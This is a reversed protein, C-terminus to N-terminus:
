EGVNPVAGSHASETKYQRDAQRWSVDLVLVGCGTRGIGLPEPMLATQEARVVIQSLGFEVSAKGL